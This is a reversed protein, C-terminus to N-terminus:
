PWGLGQRAAELAAELRPARALGPAELATM